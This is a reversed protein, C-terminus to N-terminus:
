EHARPACAHKRLEKVVRRFAGAAFDGAQVANEDDGIDAGPEPGHGRKVAVRKQEAGREQGVAEPQAMSEVGIM